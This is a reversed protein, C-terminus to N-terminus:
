ISPTAPSEVAPSAEAAQEIKRKLKREVFELHLRLNFYEQMYAAPVSKMDDLAQEMEDTTALHKECSEVDQEAVDKEIQRLVEYWGFISSRVRWRYLAPTIRLLPIVLAIAPVLLVKGRDILSAVWFPVFRQLFPPGSEFYRDAAENLPLEVFRSSPFREGTALTPPIRFVDKAEGLILPILAEHLESRCVLMAAPALLRTDRAPLDKELDFVGRRITVGTLYPYINPYSDRRDLSVLELSPDRCLDLVIENSPSTVFFAVDIEGSQLQMAAERGGISHITQSETAFVGNDSLIRSVLMRTGSGEGGIAIRLDALQRADAIKLEKRQFIWVPELYVSGIAELENVRIDNSPLTGGQVIGWDAKGSMLLEYNEVSGGTELVVLEIGHKRFRTVYKEAFRYYSGDRPGAALVIRSPPAPKVFLWAVAFGLLVIVIGSYWYARFHQSTDSLQSLFKKASPRM